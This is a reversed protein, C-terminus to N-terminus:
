LGVADHGGSWKSHYLFYMPREAIIGKDAWVQVSVDRGRGVKAPVDVTVRTGAPVSVAQTMVSGDELMYDLRATGNEVGPNELSLWEDFGNRTTGEAFYASNKPAVTGSAVHGGTWAGHYNFYMPREVLVSVDSDIVVSVDQNPGVIDNVKVTRRSTPPVALHSRISTGDGMIFRFDVTAAVSTPNQVCMYEDFGARTTGEAFYWRNSLGPSGMVDHGGTWNLKSAGQYNFYMPREAVIATDWCEVKMSVDRNPGVDANVSETWRSHAAVIVDKVKTTGDDLMYTIRVTANIGSPNQLTLYEVFGPRTTGEAFYWIRQPVTTGVADHGGDWVGQYNFYMPREATILRDSSVKASVDHGAGVAARVDVTSRSHPAVVINQEPTAGTELMYTLKVHAAEEGPNQVCIWEDFNDRTTGEAFYYTTSPPSPQSQESVYFVDKGTAADNPYFVTVARQNADSRIWPWDGEVQLNSILGPATWAGSLSETCYKRFDSYTGTGADYKATEFVWKQEGTPQIECDYFDQDYNVVHIIDDSGPVASVKYAGGWSTGDYYRSYIAGVQPVVGSMKEEVWTAMVRGDPYATLRVSTVVNDSAARLTVPTSVAGGSQPRRTFFVADNSRTVGDNMYTSYCVNMGGSSDLYLFVDSVFTQHSYPLVMVYDIGGGTERSMSVAEGEAVWAGGNWAQVQQVCTCSFRGWPDTQISTIMSVTGPALGPTMELPAQWTGDHTLLCLGAAPAHTADVQLVGKSSLVRAVPSGPEYLVVWPVLVENPTANTLKSNGSWTGSPSRVDAWIDTYSDFAGAGFYGIGYAVTVEHGVDSVGLHPQGSLNKQGAASTYNWDDIVSATGWDGKSGDIFSITDRYSNAVPANNTVANLTGYVHGDVVRFEGGTLAVHGSHDTIKKASSWDGGAPRYMYYLNEENHQYAVSNGPPLLGPYNTTDRWWNYSTYVLHVTDDADIEFDVRANSGTGTRSTLKVPASWAGETYVAYYLDALDKTVPNVDPAAVINTNTYSEYLIHLRGSSDFLSDEVWYGVGPDAVPDYPRVLPFWQGSGAGGRGTRKTELGAAPSGPPDQRLAEPLLKDPVTASANKLSAEVGPPRSIADPAYYSNDELEGQLTRGQEAGPKGSAAAGQTFALLCVAMAAILGWVLARRAVSM